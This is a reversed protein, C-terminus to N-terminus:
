KDPLFLHLIETRSSVGLKEYINHLHNKVTPLAIFLRDAITQNSEGQLLRSVIERERVTLLRGLTEDVRPLLSRHRAILRASAILILVCVLLYASTSFPYSMAIPKIGSFHVRVLFLDVGGGAALVLFGLGLMLRFRRPFRLEGLHGTAVLSGAIVGAGVLLLAAISWKMYYLFDGGSPLFQGSLKAWVLLLALLAYAGVLTIRHGRRVPSGLFLLDGLAAEAACVCLFAGAELLVLLGNTRHYLNVGLYAAAFWLALFGGVCAFVLALRRYVSAGAYNALFVLVITLALTALVDALFIALLLHNM